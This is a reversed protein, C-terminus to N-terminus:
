GYIRQRRERRRDSREVVVSGWPERQWPVTNIEISPPPHLERYRTLKRHREKSIINCDRLHDVFEWDPRMDAVTSNDGFHMAIHQMRERYAVYRDHYSSSRAQFKAEDKDCFWCITVMPLQSRLHETVIHQVWGDIAGLPFQLDCGTFSEFECPLPTPLPDPDPVMPRQLQTPQMGHRPPPASSASSVSYLDDHDFVSCNYSHTYSSATRSPSPQRRRRKRAAETETLHLSQAYYAQYNSAPLSEFSHGADFLYENHPYLRRRQGVSDVLLNIDGVLSSSSTM